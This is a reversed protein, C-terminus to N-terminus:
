ALPLSAFASELRQGIQQSNNNMSSINLHCGKRLLGQVLSWISAKVVSLSTFLPLFCHLKNFKTSDILM